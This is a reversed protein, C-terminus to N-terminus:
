CPSQLQYSQLGKVMYLCVNGRQFSRSRNDFYKRNLLSAANKGILGVAANDDKGRGGDAQTWTCNISGDLTLFNSPDEEGVVLMVDKVVAVCVDNM